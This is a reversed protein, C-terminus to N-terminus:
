GYVAAFLSRPDQAGFQARKAMRNANAGRLYELWELAREDDEASSLDESRVVLAFSLLM